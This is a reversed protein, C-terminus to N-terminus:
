AMVIVISQEKLRAGALSFKSAKNKGWEESTYRVDEFEQGAHALMMRTPEARGRADFYIVKYAPM